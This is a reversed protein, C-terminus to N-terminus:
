SRFTSRRFSTPRCPAFLSSASFCFVPPWCWLVYASIEACISRHGDSYCRNVVTPKGSRLEHRFTGIRGATAKGTNSQKTRGQARHAEPAVPGGPIGPLSPRCVRRKTLKPKRLRQLLYQSKGREPWPQRGVAPVADLSRQPVYRAASPRWREQRRWCERRRARCRPIASPRARARYRRDTASRARRWLGALARASRRPEHGPEAGRDRQHVPQSDHTRSHHAATIAASVRAPIPEPLGPLAPVQASAVAGGALYGAALVIAFLLKM